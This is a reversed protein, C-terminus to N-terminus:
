HVPVFHAIQELGVGHSDIPARPVIYVSEVLELPVVIHSFVAVLLTEMEVSIVDLIPLVESLGELGDWFIIGAYCFPVVVSPSVKLGLDILGRELFRGHGHSIIFGILFLGPWVKQLLGIIEPLPRKRISVRKRFAHFGFVERIAQMAVTLHYILFKRTFACPWDIFLLLGDGLYELGVGNLSLNSDAYLLVGSIEGM